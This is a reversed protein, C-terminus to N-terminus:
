FTKLMFVSWLVDTQKTISIFYAKSNKLSTDNTLTLDVKGEELLALSKTTSSAEVIEFDRDRFETTDMLEQLLHEVAKCTSITLTSKNLLKRKDMIAIGYEPTENTFVFGLEISTDWYFSTMKGYANPLLIFDANRKHVEDLALEFSDYLDIKLNALHNRQEIYKKFAMAAESSTTGRPGLTAMTVSNKKEIYKFLKERQNNCKKCLVDENRLSCM